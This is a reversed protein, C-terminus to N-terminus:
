QYLWYDGGCGTPVESSNGWVPTLESFDAWRGSGDNFLQNGGAPYDARRYGATPTWHGGGGEVHATTGISPPVLGSVSCGFIGNTVDNGLNWHAPSDPGVPAHPESGNIFNWGFWNNGTNGGDTLFYYGTKLLWRNNQTWYRPPMGPPDLGSFGTPELNPCTWFRRSVGQSLQYVASGTLESQSPYYIVDPQLYPGIAILGRDPYRGDNDAAETILWVGWQHLHNVCVVRRAHESAQSIAPLLLAILVVVISIVVLLEILTFGGGNTHGARHKGSRLAM